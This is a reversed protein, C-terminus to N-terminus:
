SIKIKLPSFVVPRQILMRGSRSAYILSNCLHKQSLKMEGGNKQLMFLYSVIFQFVTQPQHVKPEKHNSRTCALVFGQFSFEAEAYSFIRFGSGSMFREAQWATLSIIDKIDEIFDQDWAGCFWIMCMM